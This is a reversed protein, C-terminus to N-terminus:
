DVKGLRLVWGEGGGASPGTEQAELELVGRWRQGAVRVVVRREGWAIEEYEGEDVRRVEGREGSIPGEYELYAIRHDPLARAAVEKAGELAEEIAWTRLAGDREFMLDHHVGNWRHELLVFRPM